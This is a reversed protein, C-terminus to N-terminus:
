NSDNNDAAYRVREKNRKKNEAHIRREAELHLRAIRKRKLKQKYRKNALKVADLAM